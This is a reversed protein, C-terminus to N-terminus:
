RILNEEQPPPSRGDSRGPRRGGVSKAWGDQRQGGMLSFAGISDAREPPNVRVGSDGIVLAFLRLRESSM